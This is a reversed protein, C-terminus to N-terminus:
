RGVRRTQQMIALNIASAVDQAVLQDRSTLAQREGAGATIKVQYKVGITALVAGAALLLLGVVYLKLAAALVGVVILVWGLTRLSDDREFGVSSINAVAYTRGDIVARTSTIKVNGEEYLVEDPVYPAQPGRPTPQGWPNTATM